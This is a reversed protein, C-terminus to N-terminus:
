DSVPTVSEMVSQQLRLIQKIMGIKKVISKMDPETLECFAM